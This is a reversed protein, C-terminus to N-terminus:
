VVYSVFPKNVIESLIERHTIRGLEDPTCIRPIEKTLWLMENSAWIYEVFPSVAVPIIINVDRPMEFNYGQRHTSLWEAVADCDALAEELRKRRFDLATREGRESARSRSISRCECVFMATGLVFSVDVEKETGDQARLVKQREWLQFGRSGLEEIVYDEFIRGKREWPASIRAFRSILIDLLAACDVLYNGKWTEVIFPRPNRSVLDINGREEKNLTFARLFAKIGDMSTEYDKVGPISRFSAGTAMIVAHMSDVLGEVSTVHFYARQMYEWGSAGNTDRSKYITMRFLAMLCHIFCELTFGYEERIAEGMFRHTSYYIGMDIPLFIFNPRVPPASEPLSLNWVAHQPYENLSLRGVNYKPIMCVPGIEAHEHYHLKSVPLGRSTTLIGSEENRKDYSKILSETGNDNLVYFSWTDEVILNGGKYARRLCAAISCYEAVLRELSLLEVFDGYSFDKIYIGPGVHFEIGFEEEQIRKAEGSMIEQPDVTDGMVLDDGIELRGYKVFATEMTDRYLGVSVLSQHGFTNEPSLRRYLHMWYYISHKSVIAAIRDELAKKLTELIGISEYNLFERPPNLISLFPMVMSMTLTDRVENYRDGLQRFYSLFIFHYYGVNPVFVKAGEDNVSTLRRAIRPSGSHRYHKRKKMRNMGFVATPM